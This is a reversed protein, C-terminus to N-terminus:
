TDNWKKASPLQRLNSIKHDLLAHLPWPVSELGLHAIVSLVETQPAVVLPNRQIVVGAIGNIVRCHFELAAPDGRLWWTDDHRFSRRGDPLGPRNWPLLRLWHITV